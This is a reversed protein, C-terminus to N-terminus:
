TERPPLEARVTHSHGAADQSDTFRIEIATAAPPVAPEFDVDSDLVALGPGIYGSAGSQVWYETGLDDHVTMDRRDHPKGSRSRVMAQYHMSLVPMDYGMVSVPEITVRVALVCIVLDDGVSFIRADEDPQGVWEGDDVKELV